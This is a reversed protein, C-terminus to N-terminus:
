KTDANADGHKKKPKPEDSVVMYALSGVIFALVMDTLSLYTQSFSYLAALLAAGWFFTKIYYMANKM